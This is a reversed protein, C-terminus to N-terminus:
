AIAARSHAVRRVLRVALDVLGAALILAMGSFVAWGLLDTGTSAELFGEVLNSLVALVAFVPMTVILVLAFARSGAHTRWARVMTWTVAVALLPIWIAVVWSLVLSAVVAAAGISAIAVTSGDFQGTARLNVGILAAVTALVALAIVVSSVLYREQTWGGLGETMGFFAAVAAAIWLVGAVAAVAGLHRSFFLPMFNGKSPVATILSAVLRPEGFRALARRQATASDIGLSELREAASHLHDAVEDVLDDRDRRSRVSRGFADLYRDILGDAAM